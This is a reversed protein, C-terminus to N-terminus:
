NGCFEKAAAAKDRLKERGDVGGGAHDCKETAGDGAIEGVEEPDVHIADAVGHV